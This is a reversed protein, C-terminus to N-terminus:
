GVFLRSQTSPDFAEIPRRNLCYPVWLSQKLLGSEPVALLKNECPTM